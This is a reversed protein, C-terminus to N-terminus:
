LGCTPSPWRMAWSSTSMRGLSRSSPRTPLCRWRGATAGTETPLMLRARSSQTPPAAPSATARTRTPARTWQTARRLPRPDYPRLTPLRRASSRAAARCLRAALRSRRVRRSVGPYSYLPVEWLSPYDESKSCKNGAVSCDYPMGGSVRAPWLRKKGGGQGVSSDYRFGADSLAKRIAPSDELFPTRFGAISDAPIGCAAIASRAGVIQQKVQSPTLSRMHKHDVTHDALEHGRDYLSKASECDFGSCGKTCAFWTVPVACGNPNKHGKTASLVAKLDASAVGDDHRRRSRHHTIPPPCILPLSRGGFTTGM